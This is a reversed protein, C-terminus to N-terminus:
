WIKNSDAPLKEPPESQEPLEDVENYIEDKEEWNPEIKDSLEILKENDSDRLLRCIEHLFGAHIVSEENKVLRTIDITEFILPLVETREEIESLLDLVAAHLLSCNPQDFFARLLSIAAEIIPDMESSARRQVKRTTRLSMTSQPSIEPTEDISFLGTFVPSSQVLSMLNLDAKAEKTSFLLPQTARLPNLYQPKPIETPCLSVQSLAVPSNKKGSPSRSLPSTSVPIHMMNKGPPRPILNRSKIVQINSGEEGEKHDRTLLSPKPILFSDPTLLSNTRKPLFMSSSSGIFTRRKKEEEEHHAEEEEEKEDTNEEDDDDKEESKQDKKPPYIECIMAILLDVACRLSCEFHWSSHATIYRCIPILQKNVADKSDPPLKEQVHSMAIFEFAIAAANACTTTRAFSILSIVFPESFLPILSKSNEESSNVFTTMLGLLQEAIQPKTEFLSVFIEGLKANEFFKRFVLSDAKLFDELFTEVAMYRSMCLLSRMFASPSPIRGLFDYENKLILRELIRSYFAARGCAYPLSDIKDPFDLILMLLPDSNTMTRRFEPNEATLIKMIKMAVHPTTEKDLLVIEALTKVNNKFFIRSKQSPIKLEYLLDLKDILDVLEHKELPQYYGQKLPQVLSSM